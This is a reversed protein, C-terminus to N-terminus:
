EVAIEDRSAIRTLEPSDLITIEQPSTAIVHRTKLRTLLRIATETSVGIMEALERRSYRLRFHGNGGGNTAQSQALQVLLEALRSEASKLALSRLKRRAAILSDSLAAILRVGTLPHEQIFRELRERPLCCLQSETLAEASVSYCDSPNRPLEGLVEGPGVVTVIHERGFRDSQYLKVAGHCLIYLAAAPTGEHFIIQRAKYIGSTGCARFEDLQDLPLDCIAGGTRTACDECPIKRM